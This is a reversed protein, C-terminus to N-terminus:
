IIRSKKANIRRLIDGAIAEDDDGYVNDPAAKVANSATMTKNLAERMGAKLLAPNILHEIADGIGGGPPVMLASAWHIMLKKVNPGLHVTQKQVDDLEHWPLRM